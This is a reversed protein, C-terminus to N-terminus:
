LLKLQSELDTIRTNDVQILKIQQNNINEKLENRINVIEDEKKIIYTQM